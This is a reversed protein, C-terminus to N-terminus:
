NSEVNVDGLLCKTIAIAGVIAGLKIGFAFGRKFEYM